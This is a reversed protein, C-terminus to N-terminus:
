YPRFNIEVTIMVPVPEKGDKVAPKFRYREVANLAQAEYAANVPRLMHTNGPLGSADVVVSVLCVTEVRKAKSEPPFEAEPAHVVVPPTVGKGVHYIGAPIPWRQNAEQPPASHTFIVEGPYGGYDSLKEEPAKLLRVFVHKRGNADATIVLCGDLKMKVAQSVAVRSGDHTGATFRQRSLLRVALRDLDTGTFHLFLINKPTGDIAVIFSLEATGALKVPCDATIAQSFDTPQLQPSTVDHGPKFVKVLDSSPEKANSIACQGLCLLLCAVGASTLVRM